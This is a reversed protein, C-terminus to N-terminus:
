VGPMRDVLMVQGPGPDPGALPPPLTSDVRDARVRTTAVTTPLLLPSRTTSSTKLRTRTRSRTRVRVRPLPLSTRTHSPSLRSTSSMRSNLLM